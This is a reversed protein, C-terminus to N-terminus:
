ALGGHRGMRCLSPWTAHGHRCASIIQQFVNVFFSQMLPIVALVQLLINSGWTFGNRDAYDVLHFLASNSSTYDRLLFSMDNLGVPVNAINEFSLVGGVM